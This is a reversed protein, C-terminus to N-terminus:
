MKFRIGSMKSEGFKVLSDDDIGLFENVARQADQTVNNIYNNIIESKRLQFEVYDEIGKEKCYEEKEEDVNGKNLKSFFLKKIKDDITVLTDGNIDISDDSERISLMRKIDENSMTILTEFIRGSEYEITNLFNIDFNNQKIEELILENLYKNSSKSLLCCLM